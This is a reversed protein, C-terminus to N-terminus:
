VAIVRAMPVTKPKLAGQELSIEFDNNEIQISHNLYIAALLLKIEQWAFRQGICLHAGVGFPLYAQHPIKNQKDFREPKFLHHEEWVSELHHTLYPAFIVIDGKKLYADGLKFPKAVDRPLFLVPPFMRMAEKVVMDLYQVKNVNEVTFEQGMLHERLEKRLKEEVHPHACLLKVTFQFTALNTDQGALLMMSTDGFVHPDAILPEDKQHSSLGYISAVFNNGNKLETEHPCLFDNNLRERMEKCIEEPNRTSKSKLLPRFIPPLLWKFINRYEFIERTVFAHYDLFKKVMEPSYGNPLLTTSLLVELAYSNFVERLNIVQDNQSQLYSAYKHVLALMKPEHEALISPKHLWDSYIDKKIKWLEPSDVTINPGMFKRFMTFSIGKCLDNHHDILLKHIHDPKTIILVPKHALWYYCMGSSHQEALKGAAILNHLIGNQQFLQPIRGLLPHGKLRPIGLHRVGTITSFNLPSRAYYRHLKNNDASGISNNKNKSEQFQM